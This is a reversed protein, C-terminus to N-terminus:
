RKIKLIFSDAPCKDVFEEADDYTGSIMGFHIPIAVKPKIIKIAELAEKVDMTYTGGVPIFAIDINQLNNMEPIIDTDGAHYYRIGDMEVIFGLWNANKEHYRKDINYACITKIKIGDFDLTQEPKVYITHGNKNIPSVNLPLIITSFEDMIKNICKESYNDLHPHSVFVYDARPADSVIGYPDFYLTKSGKIMISSNVYWTINKICEAYKSEM